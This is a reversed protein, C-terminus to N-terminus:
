WRGERKPCPGSYGHFKFMEEGEPMPEGCLGCLGHQPIPWVPKHPDSAFHTDAGCVACCGEPDVRAHPGCQPCIHPAVRDLVKRLREVEEEAQRARERHFRSSEDHDSM